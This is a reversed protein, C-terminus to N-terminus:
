RISRQSYKLGRKWLSLNVGLVRVVRERKVPKNEIM